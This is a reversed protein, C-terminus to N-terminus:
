DGGPAVTLFRAYPIGDWGGLASGAVYAMAYTLM